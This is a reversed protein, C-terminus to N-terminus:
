LRFVMAWAPYVSPDTGDFTLLKLNAGLGGANGYLSSENTISM